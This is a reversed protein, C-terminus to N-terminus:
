YDFNTQPQTNTTAALAVLRNAQPVPLPRLLLANLLSFVATNAGVGLMLSLVAAITFAPSLRLARAAYRVDQALTEAWALRGVARVNERVQGVNGFRRRAAFRADDDSLGRARLLETDLELHDNLEREIEDDAPRRRRFWVM